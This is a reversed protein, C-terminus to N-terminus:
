KEVVHGSLERFDGKKYLTIGPSVLHFVSQEALTEVNFEFSDLRNRYSDTSNDFSVMYPPHLIKGQNALSILEVGVRDNSVVWADVPPIKKVLSMLIQRYRAHARPEQMFDYPSAHSADTAEFVEFGVNKLGKLRDRSWMSMHYPSVFAIRTLGKKKLFRGVIRGPFEGFALNFFAFRKEKKLARPIDYLPHEWWVAVPFRTTALKAFLKNIDFVLMTSVVAGFCDRCEELKIRNGNADLFAGEEEYYGLAKVNLNNRHAEVYVKQMFSLEREGLCNFDGNPNCRMILLIETTESTVRASAFYYRGQGKRELTGKARLQELTRRMTGLTTAYSLCMDKISPLPNDVSIKGSKWADLLLREVRETEYERASAEIKPKTGWFFGNGHEAYIKGQSALKKYARFVTFTSAGSSAAVERVSPLRDGDKYGVSEIWKCFDEVTM